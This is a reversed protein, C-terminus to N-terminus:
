AREYQLGPPHRILEDEDRIIHTIQIFYSGWNNIQDLKALLSQVNFDNPARWMEYYGQSVHNMVERRRSLTWPVPNQHEDEDMPPQFQRQRRPDYCGYEIMHSNIARGLASRIKVDKTGGVVLRLDMHIYSPEDYLNLEGLDLNAM